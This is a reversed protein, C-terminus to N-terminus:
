HANMRFTELRRLRLEEMQGIVARDWKGYKAWLVLIVGGIINSLSLSLWVGTTNMNAFLALFYGLAIRMFWVRMIEITMPVATHGSGRGVSMINICMGFFPLSPLMINLLHEAEGVIDQSNTFVAIISRRFPYVALASAAVLAFVVATTKLAVERARRSSAAGLNQGVMIATAQCLGFLMGDIMQIIVFGISFATAAIVGFINVLRQQLSFAFGNLLGFSLVPLGIRLVTKAWRLDFDRTFGIRLIPYRRRIIYTQGSISIIKGIVDTIAAGIVGLRPFPGLGLIFVPDLAINVIVSVVNIMAPWRTDGLGQLITVFTFAISMLLVDLATIASFAMVDSFIEPPTYILWLFIQERFSLFIISMIAGIVCALTFFKSAEASAARYARAGIYQSIISLCASNLAMVFAQFLMIVPFIQRPVSICLENYCSLWYTNAVNYAVLVLHNILPPLGLWFFTSMIPGNVIKDRYRSVEYLESPIGTDEAMAM